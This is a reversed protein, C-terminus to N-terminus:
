DAYHVSIKKNMQTEMEQKIKQLDNVIQNYFSLIIKMRDIYENTKTIYNKNEISIWDETTLQNIIESLTGINNEYEKSVESKIKTIAEEILTTNVNLIDNNAM